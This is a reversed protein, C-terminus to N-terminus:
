EVYKYITWTRGRSDDFSKHIPLRSETVIEKISNNVKVQGRDAPNNIPCAVIYDYRSEFFDKRYENFDFTPSWLVFKRISSFTSKVSFFVNSDPCLNLVSSGRSVHTNLFNSIDNDTSDATLIGRAISSDISTTSAHVQKVVGLFNMLLLIAGVLVFIPAFKRRVLNDHLFHENGFVVILIVLPSFGWWFHMQDFLPAIQTFSCCSILVLLNRSYNCEGNVAKRKLLPALLLILLYVLISISVSIWIRRVLLTLWTIFDLDSFFSAILMSSLLGLVIFLKSMTSIVKSVGHEKILPVTVAIVILFFASLLFTVRPFPYTSIDGSVYQSSFIVSDYLSDGLWGQSYLLSGVIILCAVFGILFARVERVKRHFILLIPILLFLLVGVQLRTGIIIFVIFGATVHAYDSNRQTPFQSTLRELVVIILLACFASPWPLFTSNLGLAFPQALLFILSPARSINGSLYRSSVRQILLATALYYALTCLRIAILLYQDSVLFSILAFPFAWLQGYQNFPWNGEAEIARRLELSTTLILGDHHSDFNVFVPIVLLVISVLVYMYILSRSNIWNRSLMEVGM